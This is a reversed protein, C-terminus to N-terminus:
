QCLHTIVDVITIDGNREAEIFDYNLDHHNAFNETLSKALTPETEVFEIKVLGYDERDIAIEIKSPIQPQPFQVNQYNKSVYKKWKNINNPPYGINIRSLSESM